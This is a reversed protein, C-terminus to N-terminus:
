EDNGLKKHLYIKEVISLFENEDFVHKLCNCKYCCSVVNTIYYGVKNNLRDLSISNIAEGCYYCNINEFKIFDNYDLEFDLNRRKADLKCKKFKGLPTNRYDAIRIKECSKCDLRHKRFETNAKSLLCKKCIKDM